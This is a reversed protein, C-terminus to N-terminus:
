DHITTALHHSETGETLLRAPEFGASAVYPGQALKEGVISQIVIADSAYFHM